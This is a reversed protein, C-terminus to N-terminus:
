ANQQKRGRQTNPTIFLERSCLTRTEKLTSTYALMQGNAQWYKYTTNSTIHKSENETTNNTQAVLNKIKKTTLL